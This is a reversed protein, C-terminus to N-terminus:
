VPVIPAQEGSKSSNKRRLYLVFLVILIIMLIVMGIILGTNNKPALIPACKGCKTNDVKKYNLTETEEVGGMSSKMNITLSDGQVSIISEAEGSFLESSINETIILQNNEFRTNSIIVLELGEKNTIKYEHEEGDLIVERDIEGPTCSILKNKTIRFNVKKSDITEEWCGIFSEPISFNSSFSEKIITKLNFM